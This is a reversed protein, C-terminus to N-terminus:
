RGPRKLLILGASEAVRAYGAREAAVGMQTDPSIGAVSDYIVYDAGEFGQSVNWCDYRNSVHPAERDSAAVIETKPIMRNWAELARVRERQEATAPQFSMWGYSSRVAHRPPIAGWAATALLTGAALTAAAARRNVLGAGRGGLAALALATAPFVYGVFAAGYHFSIETTPGYDTTLLTFLSGPVVALALAPRMLPLFALPTLIQLAYRLKTPTALTRLTYLPNTVVTKVM